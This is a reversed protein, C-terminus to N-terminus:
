GYCFSKRMGGVVHYGGDGLIDSITVNAEVITPFWTRFEVAAISDVGYMPMPGSACHEEKRGAAVLRLNLCGSRDPARLSRM